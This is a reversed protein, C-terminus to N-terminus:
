ILYYLIIILFIVNFFVYVSSNILVTIVIHSGIFM